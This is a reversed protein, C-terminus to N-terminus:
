RTFIGLFKGFYGMGLYPYITSFILGPIVIKFNKSLKSTSYLEFCALACVTAIFFNVLFPLRENFFIVMLVLLGGILGSVTRTIM